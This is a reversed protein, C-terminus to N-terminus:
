LEEIKKIIYKLIPEDIDLIRIKEIQQLLKDYDYKECNCYKYFEPYANFIHEYIDAAFESIKNHGPDKLHYKNYVLELNLLSHIFKPFKAIIIKDKHLRHHLDIKEISYGTNTVYDRKYKIINDIHKGSIACKNKQFELLYNAKEDYNKM